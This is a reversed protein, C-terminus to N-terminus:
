QRLSGNVSVSDISGDVEAGFSNGDAVACVRVVVVGLVVGVHDGIASEALGVKLGASSWRELGDDGQRVEFAL